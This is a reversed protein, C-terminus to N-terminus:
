IGDRVGKEVMLLMDINTLLDLKVKAKKLAAQWALGPVSFINAPDLRYIKFCMNRCNEFVDALLITNSQVYFYHYEEIKCVRKEHTFDGDTIDEMNLHSCFDRKEPSSTQKFKEWDDLYKYPYVGKQLLLIVKNTDHNSFKYTDFFREQLQEFFKRQYNKNCCLCTFEKLDGKFNIHLLRM